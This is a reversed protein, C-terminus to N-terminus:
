KRTTGSLVVLGHQAADGAREATVQMTPFGRPDAASWMQVSANGGSDVLFTGATILDPHGPRNGPGAYWCEYFGGAPLAALHHVTLQISWGEATQHAVAQGSARSDAGGHAAHLPISFAQAPGSGSSGLGVVIAAVAAIVAVAAITFLRSYRRRRAAKRAAQEVMALTRAELDAPPEAEAALSGAPPATKLMRAAPGLETVAQQCEECSQLHAEFRASDGPDLVGLVAGVADLHEAPVPVDPDDM